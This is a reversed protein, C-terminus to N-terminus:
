FDLAMRSMKGISIYLIYLYKLKFSTTKAFCTLKRLCAPSAKDMATSEIADNIGTSFALAILSCVDGSPVIESFSCSWINQWFALAAARKVALHESPAGFRLLPVTLPRVIVM